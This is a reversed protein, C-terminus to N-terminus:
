AEPLTTIYKGWKELNSQGVNRKSISVYSLHGGTDTITGHVTKLSVAYKNSEYSTKNYLMKRCIGFPKRLSIWKKASKQSFSIM